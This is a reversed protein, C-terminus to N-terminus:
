NADNLSWDYELPEAPPDGGHEEVFSRVEEDAYRAIYSPVNSASGEFSADVFDVRYWDMVRAYRLTEDEVRVFQENTLIAKARAELQEDIADGTYASGALYPCDVAACNVAFHIRPDRYLPRILGHEIQDLSLTYGGVEFRETSWPDSLEQISEIEPYNELILELTYANYANVLLALQEDRPLDALEASAVRGLYADLEERQEALGAYDVEGAEEDVHADLLADYSEHDFSGDGSEMGSELDDVIPSELKQPANSPEEESMADGCGFLGAAMAVLALAPLTRGIVRGTANSKSRKKDNAM